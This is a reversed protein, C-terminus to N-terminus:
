GAIIFWCLLILPLMVVHCDVGMNIYKHGKDSESDLRILLVSCLKEVYLNASEM